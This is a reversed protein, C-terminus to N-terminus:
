KFGRMITFQTFLFDLSGYIFLWVVIYDLGGLYISAILAFPIIHDLSSFFFFVYSFWNLSEAKELEYVNDENKNQHQFFSRCLNAAVMLWAAGLAWFEIRPLILTTTTSAALIGILAYTVCRHLIDTLFDFYAGSKSSMERTRAIDGDICDLCQFIGMVIALVWISESEPLYLSLPLLLTLILSAFTITSPKIGLNIAIPTLIFSIQRYLVYIIWQNHKEDHRKADDFSEIVDLRNYKRRSNM